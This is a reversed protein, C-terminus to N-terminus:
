KGCGFSAGGNLTVRQSRISSRFPLHLVQSPRAQTSRYQPRRKRVSRTNASSREAQPFSLVGFTPHRRVRASQTENGCTFLRSASRTERGQRSPMPSKGPRTLNAIWSPMVGQSFSAEEVREHRREARAGSIKSADVGIRMSAPLAGQGPVFWCCRACRASCSKFFNSQLASYRRFGRFYRGPDAKNTKGDWRSPGPLRGRHRGNLSSMEPHAEM